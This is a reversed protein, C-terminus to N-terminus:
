EGARVVAPLRTSVGSADGRGEHYVVRVGPFIVVSGRTRPLSRPNRTQPRFALIQAM